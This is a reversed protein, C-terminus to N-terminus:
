NNENILPLIGNQLVCKVIEGLDQTRIAEGCEIKYKLLSVIGSLYFEVVANKKYDDEAISFAKAIVPFMINKCRELTRGRNAGTLLVYVLWEKETLVYDFMKSFGDFMDNREMNALIVKKVHNLLENEMTELLDYADHFYQYFTVRNHGAREAIERVTIKEVPKYAYIESFADIFHQRTAGPLETKKKM